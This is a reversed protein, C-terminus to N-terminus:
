GLRALISPIESIVTRYQAPYRSQFQKLFYFIADNRQKIKAPSCNKCGSNGSGINNMQSIMQRAGPSKCSAMNKFCQTLENVSAKNRMLKDVAARDIDEIRTDSKVDNLDGTLGGRKGGNQNRRLAQQRRGQQNRRQQPASTVFSATAVLLLLATALSFKM